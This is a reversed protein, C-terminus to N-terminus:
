SDLSDFEWEISKPVRRAIFIGVTKSEPYRNLLVRQAAKFHSGTTLVDDVVIITQPAPEAKDEDIAYNAAIEDPSPRTKNLHSAPITEKQILLERYEYARGECAARVVQVLRDDYLPDGKAKSPPIPVLTVAADAKIAARLLRASEEIALGKYKWQATGKRDVPKKLNLILQNTASFAHGAGATYEGFYYCHDDPDLYHHDPRSLDDIKQLRSAM